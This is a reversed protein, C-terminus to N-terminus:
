FIDQDCHLITNNRNDRSRWTDNLTIYNVCPDLCEFSGNTTNCETGSPCCQCGSCSPAQEERRYCVFPLSLSCEEDLWRGTDNFSGAACQDGSPNNPERDAWHRFLSLSGDSWLKEWYLGIWATTGNLLQKILENETQNRISQLVADRSCSGQLIAETSCSGQLAAETSCSGQLVAETSCSGQLLAERSCSGQPGVIAACLGKPGGVAVCLGQPVRSSSTLLARKPVESALPARQPTDLVFEAPSTVGSPVLSSVCPVLSPVGSPGSVISPVVSPDFVRALSPVSSPGLALSPESSPGRAISPVSSPGSALSPVSSPGSAISPVSSPGSAWQANPQTMEIQLFAMQEEWKNLQRERTGLVLDM